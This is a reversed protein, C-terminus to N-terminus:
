FMKCIVFHKVSHKKKKKKVFKSWILKKCQQLNQIIVLFRLVAQVGVSIFCFRNCQIKERWNLLTILCWHRCSDIEWDELIFKKMIFCVFLFYHALTEKWFSWLYNGAVAFIWSCMNLNFSPTFNSLYWNWM